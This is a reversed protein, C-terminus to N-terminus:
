REQEGRPWRSRPEPPVTEHILAEFEDRYKALFSEMPM